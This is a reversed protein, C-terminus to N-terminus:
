SKRWSSYVNKKTNKKGFNKKKVKRTENAFFFFSFFVKWCDGVNKLFWSSLLFIVKEASYNKRRIDWFFFNGWFDGQFFTIEFFFINLRAAPFFILFFRFRTFIKRVSEALWWYWVYSERRSLLFISKM